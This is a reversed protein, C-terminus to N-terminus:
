AGQGDVLQQARVLANGIRQEMKTTRRRFGLEGVAQGIRTDRDVQLRDTLLWLCLEVLERDLYGDIKSRRPKSLFEPRPGREVVVQQSKPPSSTTAPSPAIDREADLMAKEWSEVIMATQTAPDRFWESAWVRHFRWGLRELHEQRLRDRDRASGLRHYTDGDAEVALVMRGPQDRHALAFDIRYGAVGWQPTVSVGAAVLADHISKEFGNMEQTGRAGVLGLSGGNDAFELYQRLLDAGVSIGTTPMDLPSFSAVLDVRKRARTIAVNLRREGGQRNLPGFATLHLRGNIAKAAGLSFIIADREDGQVQEISKVFLRRGAGQMRGNFEALEDHGANARRLALEIRKAHPGGMTIVGLTDEPNTRAHTLVLDIVKEVEAEASGDRGPAVRGDVQHLSLPSVAQCGPFTILQGQYFAKNSFAILREDQSRYHWELMRTHPIFAGLCALISEFDRLQPADAQDDDENNDSDGSLATRFWASPPLQREDGAVVLQRGRMISTMSDQPEVQSAEDFVVLDFLQEAPLLRSVVIPSMAWCPFAALLVNPAKAVLKRLPMHGRRRKAQTRVVDNEDPHADRADRLREAVRRRVRQANLQFHATDFERFESVVHSHHPGAFQGLHPIRVRYEDLLSSYWSYRFMTRALEADANREVLVDLLNGLGMEVLRDTLENLMPVQFLVDREGHLREVCATVEEESWQDSEALQAGMAVAALQDRAAAIEVLTEALGVVEQPAGGEVAMEQWRSRQALAARLETHLTRTNCKGAKRLAGAIKRFRHRQWWNMPRPNASRWGRDGTAFCYDELEDGFVDKEFLTLTVEVHRLLELVQEWGPLDTPRQFGVQSILRRMQNQAKPWTKGHLEDLQVVIARMQDDTRIDSQSWASEGRRFRLGDSNIFRMLDDEIRRVIDGHLDRLDAGRFRVSNESKLPLALLNDYLSFARIGWPEIAAHLARGHRILQDRRETLREHLGNVEAPPEKSARDLSESVQQAIQRKDLKQQHLDFVLHGRDV